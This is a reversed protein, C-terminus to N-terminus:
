VQLTGSGAEFHAVQVDVAPASSGNDAPLREAAVAHAADAGLGAPGAVQTKKGVGATNRFVGHAAAEGRVQLHLSRVKKQPPLYHKERKEKDTVRVLHFKCDVITYALSVEEILETLRSRAM